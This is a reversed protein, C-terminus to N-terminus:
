CRRAAAWAVARKQQQPPLGRAAPAIVLANDGSLVMNIGIIQLLTIWFESAGFAM